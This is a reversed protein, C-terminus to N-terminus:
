GGDHLHGRPRVPRDVEGAGAPQHPLCGFATGPQDQEGLHKGPAAGAGLLPLLGLPDRTGRGRDEGGEGALETDVEARTREEFRYGAFGSGEVRAAEEGRVALQDAAVPLDM